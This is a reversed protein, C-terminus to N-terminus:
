AALKQPAPLAAAIAMAHDRNKPMGLRHFKAYFPKQPDNLTIHTFLGGTSTKAPPLRNRDYETVELVQCKGGKVRLVLLRHSTLGLVYEKTLLAVAIAGPLIALLFLLFILGIPPQKVGYAWHQLQEGPHLQKGLTETVIPDKYRAM